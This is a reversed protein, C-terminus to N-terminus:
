HGGMGQAERVLLIATGALHAGIGERLPVVDSVPSHGQVVTEVDQRGVFLRDEGPGLAVRQVDLTWAAGEVAVERQGLGFRVHEVHTVAGRLGSVGFAGVIQGPDFPRM